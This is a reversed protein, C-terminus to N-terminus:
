LIYVFGLTVGGVYGVHWEILPPVYVCLVSMEAITIYHSPDLIIFHPGLLGAVKLFPPGQFMIAATM